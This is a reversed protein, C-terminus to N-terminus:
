LWQLSQYDSAVQMRLQAIKMDEQYGLIKAVVRTRIKAEEDFNYSDILTQLHILNIGFTSVYEEIVKQDHSLIKTFQMGVKAKFLNSIDRSLEHKRVIRTRARFITRSLNEYRFQKLDEFSLSKMLPYQPLNVMVPLEDAQPFNPLNHILMGDESINLVQSTYVHQGDLYLMRGKHPARLYRRQYKGVIM